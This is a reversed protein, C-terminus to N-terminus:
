KDGFFQLINGEPDAITMCWFGGPPGEFPPVLITVNKKKLEEYAESVSPVNFHVMVRYPDKAQGHVKDHRGIYFYANGFQFDVGTDDPLNLRERVPFELVEEYWRALKEYNDSWISVSIIQNSLKM